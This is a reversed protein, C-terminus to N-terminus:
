APALFELVAGAAESPPVVISGTPTRSFDVASQSLVGEVRERSAVRFIAAAFWGEASIAPLAIRPFRAQFGAPSLFSIKDQPFAVVPCEREYRVAEGFLEAYTAQLQAPSPHV